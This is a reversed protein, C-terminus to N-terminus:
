AASDDDGWDDNDSQDTIAPTPSRAVKKRGRGANQFATAYKRVASGSSGDDSNEKRMSVFMVQIRGIAIVAALRERFTIAPDTEIQDLLYSMQQYLMGNVNLPDLPRATM